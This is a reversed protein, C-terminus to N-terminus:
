VYGFKICNMSVIGIEKVGLLELQKQEEEEIWQLFYDPEVEFLIKDVKSVIVGSPTIFAVQLITQKM